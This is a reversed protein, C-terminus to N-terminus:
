ANRGMPDQSKVESGPKLHAVPTTKRMKKLCHKEEPRAHRKGIMDLGWNEIALIGELLKRRVFAFPFRM